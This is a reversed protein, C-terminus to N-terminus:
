GQAEQTEPNRERKPGPRLNLLTDVAAELSAPFLHAYRRTMQPDKHGITCLKVGEGEDRIVGVFNHSAEVVV